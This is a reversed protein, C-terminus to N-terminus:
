NGYYPEGFSRVRRYATEAAAYCAGTRGTVVIGFQTCVDQLDRRFQNDVRKGGSTSITGFIASANRYGFDHKGCANGFSRLFAGNIANGFASCSDTSWDLGNAPLAGAKVLSRLTSVEHATFGFYM